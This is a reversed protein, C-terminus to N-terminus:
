LSKVLEDSLIRAKHALNSAREWDGARVAEHAQGLFDRVKGVLDEQSANLQRGSAFQLNKEAAQIDGGTRQEYASQQQPTLQPTIEPAEPKPEPPASPAPESPTTPKPRVPASEPPPTSPQPEPKPESAPVSTTQAHPPPSAPPPVTEPPTSVSPPAAKVINRQCGGLALAASMLLGASVASLFKM